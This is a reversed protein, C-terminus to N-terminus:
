SRHSSYIASNVQGKVSPDLKKGDPCKGQEKQEAPSKPKECKSGDKSAKQGAPCDECKQSKESYVMSSYHCKVTKKCKGDNNKDNSAQRKQVIEEIQSLTSNGAREALFSSFGGDAIISADRLELLPGDNVGRKMVADSKRM